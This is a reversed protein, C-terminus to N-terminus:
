DERLNLIVRRGEIRPRGEIFLKIATPYAKYEARQIRAKLSQYTDNDKVRVPKQYIIPGHDVQEDVLHITVGSWKVGYDLAQQFANMGRFSPLLAPHINIIRNRFHRVFASSLVRMYGTLILLEVSVTELKEMLKLDYEDRSLGAPDIFQHKVGYTRAIRLAGADKQDTLVIKVKAPLYGSHTAGIIYRLNEGRGSSIIGLDVGSSL